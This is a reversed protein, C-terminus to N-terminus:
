PLDRINSQLLNTLLPGLEALVQEWLPLSNPKVQAALDSVWYAQAQTLIPPSLFQELSPRPLGKHACKALLTTYVTASDFAASKEGLLRWVDYYDRAKGRELFARLKEALIEELAYTLVQPVPQAFLGTLVPRCM